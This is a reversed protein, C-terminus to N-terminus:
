AEAVMNIQISQPNTTDIALIRNRVPPIIETKPIANFTVVNENYISNTQVGFPYLSDIVVTGTDYYITGANRNIYVKQGSSNVYFTRITGFRTELVATAQAEVGNGIISVNAYNYNSGSNTVVISQIKDNNLIAEATAGTGDGIIRITPETEYSRGPRNVTVSKVGTNANPLDEFFINRSILSSDYVTVYPFSYFKDNAESRAIETNFSFSYRKSQELSLVIQKQLYITIDSGTISPDANEIYQQLKSKRFISKFNNLQDSNYKVVANKVITALQAATKTTLRSNYNVNGTILVFVYDPDVIEPTVTMVNSAKILDNKIGEKELDTLAYYGKTKISMYVKGYVPPSNDEGGWVNVAEISNYNKLLISEYDATTVARNQATYFNPARFKIREIDEKEQGGYASGAPYVRVDDKYIGGIPQTFNFKSVDNGPAGITDLYTVQIINGDKPKYGIYNDGFYITYRLNEDEELFFVKSNSTLETIDTSLFYEETYTNSSSEQITVAITTTDVNASPIQYRRTPNNSNVAYQRTIVEGQKIEVNAFTFSNGIKTVTNSHTTVFPYNVGDIDAGLLRTYKDLTLDRLIRNETRSPTVVVTALTKAGQRSAPVYGIAKAHSLVNNRIQATDLFSENAVMNLYYSNYYTNYALIDLLVALGSGEFDYDAFTDQSRLFDKLNNRISSYDLDAIKLATNNNALSM